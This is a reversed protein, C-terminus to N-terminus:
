NPFACRAEGLKDISLRFGADRSKPDCNAFGFHVLFAWMMKPKAPPMAISM